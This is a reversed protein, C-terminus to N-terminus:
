HASGAKRELREQFRALDIIFREHTGEGVKEASDHAEVEFTLRPGDVAVLRSRVRVQMGLPTAALHRVNVMVGVTTQGPALLPQVMQQSAGEMLAIMYPTALVQVSGSGIHKATLSETVTVAIENTLGAALEPM